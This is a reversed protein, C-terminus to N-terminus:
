DRLAQQPIEDGHRITLVGDEDQEIWDGIRAPTVGDATAVYACRHVPDYLVGPIHEPNPHPADFTADTIQVPKMAPVAM